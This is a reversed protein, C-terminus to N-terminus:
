RPQTELIAGRKHDLPTTTWGARPCPYHAIILEPILDRMTIEFWRADFHSFNHFVKEGDGRRQLILGHASRLAPLMVMSKSGESLTFRRSACTRSNMLRSTEGASRMKSDCSLACSLRQCIGGTMSSSFAFARAAPNHFRNRGSLSSPAPRVLRSYAGSQSIM